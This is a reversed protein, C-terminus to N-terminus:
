GGGVFQVIELQSGQSLHTADWAPRKLIQRDMEVAVREPDLGLDRLLGLVTQRDPTSVSKGNVVIEIPM